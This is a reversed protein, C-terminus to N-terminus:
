GNACPEKGILCLEIEWLVTFTWTMGSKKKESILPTGLSQLQLKM